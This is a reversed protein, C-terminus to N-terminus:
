YEKLDDERASLTVREEFGEMLKSFMRCIRFCGDNKGQLADNPLFEPNQM